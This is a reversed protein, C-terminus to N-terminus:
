ASIGGAAFADKAKLQYQKLTAALEPHEAKIVPTINIKALWLPIFNLKFAIADNNPDFVGAHFKM